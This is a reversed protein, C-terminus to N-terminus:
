LAVQKSYANPKELTKKKKMNGDGSNDNDSNDDDCLTDAIEKFLPIHPYKFATQKSRLQKYTKEIANKNHVAEVLAYLVQKHTGNKLISGCIESYEQSDYSEPILLVTAIIPFKRTEVDTM